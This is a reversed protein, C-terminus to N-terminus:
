KHRMGATAADANQIMSIGMGPIPGFGRANVGALAEDDLMQMGSFKGLQDQSISSTSARTVPLAAAPSAAFAVMPQFPAAAMAVFAATYRYRSQQKLTRALDKESIWGKQILVEGLMLNESAQLVLAEDLQQETIYGRNVLLRGLRSKAIQENRNVM